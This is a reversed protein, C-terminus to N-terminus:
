LDIKSFCINAISVRRTWAASTEIWREQFCCCGIFCSNSMELSILSRNM